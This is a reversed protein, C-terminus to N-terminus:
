GPGSPYQTPRWMYRVDPAREENRLGDTWEVPVFGHREYFRRAGQNSQFTWLQLGGPRLTKAVTLLDLGVGAGTHRPDVYLQDLFDGDLVMLGIVAGSDDAAIWLEHESFVTGEFWGLTDQDDHVMPPIAPVAAARSRVYVAAAEEVDQHEARRVLVPTHGSTRRSQSLDRRMAVRWAPDLGHAAEADRVSRLGPDLEDDSLVRFGLHEYLPRNWPIHGFTTLTLAGMGQGAAWRAAREVLARGLGRGQHEPAVSVQEIHAAGDVADVLIYGVPAGGADEAAWARGGAVYETLVEISAPEDDAVRNLGFERYREGAAREIERLVPLDDLRVARVRESM